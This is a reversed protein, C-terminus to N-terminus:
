FLFYVYYFLLYINMFNYSVFFLDRECVTFFIETKFYVLFSKFRMKVRLLIQFSFFFLIFNKISHFWCLKLTCWICRPLIINNIKLRINFQKLKIFGIIEHENWVIKKKCILKYYDQFFAVIGSKCWVFYIEGIPICVWICSFLKQWGADADFSSYKLLSKGHFNESKKMKQLKLIELIHEWFLQKDWGFNLNHCYTKVCLNTKLVKFVNKKLKKFVDTHTRM